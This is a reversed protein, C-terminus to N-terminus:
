AYPHLRCNASQSLCVLFFISLWLQRLSPSATATHGMPRASARRLGYLSEALSAGNTLISTGQVLLSFLLYLEADMQLLRLGGHPVRDAVVQLNTLM